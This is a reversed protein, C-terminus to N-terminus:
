KHIVNNTKESDNKAYKLATEYTFKRNNLWGKWEKEFKSFNPTKALENM